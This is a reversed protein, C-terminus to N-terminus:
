DSLTLCLARRASCGNRRSAEPLPSALRLLNFSVSGHLISARLPHCRVSAFWVPFDFADLFFFFAVAVRAASIV